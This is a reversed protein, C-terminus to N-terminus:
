EGEPEDESGPFTALLGFAAEIQPHLKEVPDEGKSGYEIYLSLARIIDPSTLYVSDLWDRIHRKDQNGNVGKVAHRCCVLHATDEATKMDTVNALQAASLFEVLLADAGKEDYGSIYEGHTPLWGARTPDVVDPDYAWVIKHRTDKKRSRAIGM